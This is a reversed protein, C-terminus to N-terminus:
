PSSVSFLKRERCKVGRHVRLSEPLQYAITGVERIWLATKM